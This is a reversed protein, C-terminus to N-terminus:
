RTYLTQSLETVAEATRPGFGLLYLGNMRVVADNKAAPTTSLAPMSFLTQNNAGHDDARDMMLIVDPQARSVAEDTMPKYGEFETVANDGGALRIIADAATDSGSALIRGGQTSLVFLVRKRDKGAMDTARQRAADMQTQVDEALAAAEDSVGLAHGVVRIKHAIGAGDRVLPVTVFPIDASQLVEITEPPGAGEESLIMAPDVALVGEPSLARMYGVDPLDHAAPPYVSTTDRAVLRHEQGLAYVIETVSGGISLIDAHPTDGSHAQSNPMWVAIAAGVFSMLVATPLGVRNRCAM